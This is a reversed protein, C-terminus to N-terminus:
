QRSIIQASKRAPAFKSFPLGSTSSTDSSRNKWKRGKGCCCSNRSLILSEAHAPFSGFARTQSKAGLIVLEKAALNKLPIVPLALSAALALLELDVVDNAPALRARIAFLIQNRETAGAM